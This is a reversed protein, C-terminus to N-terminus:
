SDTAFVIRLIVKCLVLFIIDHNQNEQKNSQVGESTPNLSATIPNYIREPQTLM